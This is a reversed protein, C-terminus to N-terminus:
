LTYEVPYLAAQPTQLRAVREDRMFAAIARQTKLFIERKYAWGQVSSIGSLLLDRLRIAAVEHDEAMGNTLVECFRALKAEDLGTAHAATIAALVFAGNLGRKKIPMHLRTFQISDKYHICVDTIQNTTLTNGSFLYRAIAVELNGIWNHEGTIKIADHASRPRNMDIDKCVEAPIDTTVMMDVTCNSDIIALLRHQGDALEGNEFFAIGQHTTSWNGDRMDTAYKKVLRMSPNRNRTNSELWVRATAPTIAMISAKM